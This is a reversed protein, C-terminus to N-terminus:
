LIKIANAGERMKNSDERKGDKNMVIMVTVVSM